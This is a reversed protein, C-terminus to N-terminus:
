LPMQPNCLLEKVPTTVCYSACPPPPIEPIPYRTRQQSAHIAPPVGQIVSLHNLSERERQRQRQREREGDKKRKKKEKRKQEKKKRGWEIEM